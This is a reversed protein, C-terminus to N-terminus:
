RQAPLNEAIFKLIVEIATGEIFRQREKWRTAIGALKAGAKQGISDITVPMSFIAGGAV